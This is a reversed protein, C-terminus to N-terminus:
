AAKEMKVATRRIKRGEMTAVVKDAVDAPVQVTSETNGITIRGVSKGPIGCEGAIAGVLDGPGVGQARGVNVKLSVMNSDDRRPRAGRPGRDGGSSRAGRRGGRGGRDDQGAASHGQLDDTAGAAAQAQRLHLLSAIIVAGPHGLGALDRVWPEYQSLDTARAVADVEKVFRERRVEAVQELTPIADAKVTAKSYREISKLRQLETRTSVFSFSMGSRGARATRGIRHVYQEEDLPLDYNFVAQVHDVDIGRAAVDTAVLVPVQGSRFKGMVSTREWQEMDGHLAGAQYGRARLDHAVRDAFSKTNVFVVASTFGYLDLLRALLEGKRNSAVEYSRQDITPVTLEKAAVRVIEPDRMFRKMLNAMEDPVTASFFATQRADPMSHLLKEIDEFFGMDLMEDAEDLVAYKVSEFRLTGRELHDTVRGPTGVVIQAGARLERIQPGMDVGGYVSAVRVGKKHKCYARIGDAVQLALERTPCLIVGQTEKKSADVFDILPIGFAATKGSGTQAQGVVDRGAALFPIAQAQIDSPKKFGLEALAKLVEPSIPLEDFSSAQAATATM